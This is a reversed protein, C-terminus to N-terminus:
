ELPSVSFRESMACAHNRVMEDSSAAWNTLLERYSASRFIVEDGEVISAFTKIEAAHLERDKREIPREDPWREPEAYLYFLVPKKVSARSLHVATRLGFAHKILQAADLKAFDMREHRLADRLREYRRMSDGWVSRWYAESFKPKQKTRFPEYRKSEIGILAVSTEVLVDLCPHHGGSWPFRVTAELQISKAPWGLKECGIIPPLSGPRMLFVGFANAVLSSSSEPSFFKGSEIENGPANSYAEWILEVPVGPLLAQEM